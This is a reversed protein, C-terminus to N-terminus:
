TTGLVDQGTAAVQEESFALLGRGRRAARRNQAAKTEQAALEGERAKIDAKQKKQEAVLEKSPGAAKPPAPPKPAMVSTIVAGVIAAVIAEAM